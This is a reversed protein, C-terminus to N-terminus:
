LVDTQRGCQCWMLQGCDTLVARSAM